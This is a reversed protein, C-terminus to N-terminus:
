YVGEDGGTIQETKTKILGFWILYFIPVGFGLVILLVLGIMQGIGAAANSPDLNPAMPNDPFEKAWQGNLDAKHLQNMYSWVVVPISTVGYLLHMMRTVPRYSVCAIGAFLLLLALLFGIGGIIYDTVSPVMGYPIPEGNTMAGKIFSPSLPLMAMGLGGCVLGLSGWIISIIGIVKPWKPRQVVDIAEWQDVATGEANVDHDHELEHEHESM